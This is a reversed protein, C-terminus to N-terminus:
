IVICVSFSRNRIMKPMKWKWSINTWFIEKIAEILLRMNNMSSPRFVVLCVFFNSNRAYICIMLNTHSIPNSMIVKMCAHYKMASERLTNYDSWNPFLTSVWPLISFMRGWLSAKKAFYFSHGAARYEIDNRM